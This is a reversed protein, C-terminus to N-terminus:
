PHAQNGSTHHYRCTHRSYATQDERTQKPNRKHQGIRPHTKSQHPDPSFLMVLSKPVSMLLFNDKLYATMEELNISDELDLIKVGTAWVTLDDAYCIRKVPETPRPMDAIYFSFLSPSMKSGQPFGTNVKKSM